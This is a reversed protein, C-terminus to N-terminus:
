FSPWFYSVILRTFIVNSFFCYSIKNIKTKAKREIHNTDKYVKLVVLSHFHLEKCNSYTNKECVLPNFRRVQPVCCLSFALPSVFPIFLPNLIFLSSSYIPHIFLACLVGHPAATLKVWMVRDRSSKEGSRDRFTRKRPMQTKM